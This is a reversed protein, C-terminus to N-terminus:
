RGGRTNKHGGKEGRRGGEVLLRTKLSKRLILFGQSRNADAADRFNHKQSEKAMGGYEGLGWHM